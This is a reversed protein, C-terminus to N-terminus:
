TRACRAASSSLRAIVSSRLTPPRNGHTRSADHMRKAERYETDTAKGYKRARAVAGFRVRLANTEDSPHFRDRLYM